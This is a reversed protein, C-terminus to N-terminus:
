CLTIFFTQFCRSSGDNYNLEIYSNVYLVFLLASLM